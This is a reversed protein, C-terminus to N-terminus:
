HAAEAPAAKIKIEDKLRIRKASAVAAPAMTTAPSLSIRSKEFDRFHLTDPLDGTLEYISSCSGDARTLTRIFPRM